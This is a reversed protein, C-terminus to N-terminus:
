YNHNTITIKHFYSIFFQLEIQRLKLLCIYLNDQIIVSHTSILNNFYVKFLDKKMMMIAGTQITIIKALYLCTEQITGTQIM